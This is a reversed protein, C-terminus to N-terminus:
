DDPDDPWESSPIISWLKRGRYLWVRDKSKAKVVCSEGYNFDVKVEAGEPPNDVAELLYSTVSIEQATLIAGVQVSFPVENVRPISVRGM